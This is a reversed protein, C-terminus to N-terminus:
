FKYAIGLRVDNTALDIDADGSWSNNFDKSGFDSYRYEARLLLNDTVAYDVGVGVNWGTLTHKEEFDMNGHGNHDVDFEYQAVSLGGAVYPMFRDIAYGLRGRVAGTWNVEANAVHQDNFPAFSNDIGSFNLDADIGLVVNNQFQYNYGAYVGGFAGKPDYDITDSPDNYESNGWAYGAQVGVYGGTWVFGAPVQEVAVIDAATAASSAVIVAATALLFRKM